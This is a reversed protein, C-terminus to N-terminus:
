RPKEWEPENEFEACNAHEKVNASVAHPDSNYEHQWYRTGTPIKRGCPSCKHDKKATVVKMATM